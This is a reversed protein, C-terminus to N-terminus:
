DKREIAQGTIIWPAPQQDFANKQNLKSVSIQIVEKDRIRLKEFVTGINAAVGFDLTYVVVRIHPNLKTFFELEQEM